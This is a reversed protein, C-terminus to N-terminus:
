HDRGPGPLTSDLYARRSATRLKEDCRSCLDFEVWSCGGECGMEQTCGCVRCVRDLLGSRATDAMFQLLIQLALGHTGAVRTGALVLVAASLYLEGEAHLVEVAQDIVEQSRLTRVTARNRAIAERVWRDLDETTVVGAKEEGAIDEPEPEPDIAGPVWIRGM